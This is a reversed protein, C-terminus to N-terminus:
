AAEAGRWQEHNRKIPEDDSRDAARLGTEQAAVVRGYPWGQRSSVSAYGAAIDRRSNFNLPPETSM